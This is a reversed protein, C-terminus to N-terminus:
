IKTLDIDFIYCKSGPESYNIVNYTLAQGYCIQIRENKLALLGVGITSIKNNMPAILINEDKYKNIYEKLSNYTKIPDDCPIDFMNINPYSPSMQMVLHSYHSNAEKDKEVTSNESKGYGLSLVNPELFNIMANAREVEFGVIILLHAKKSPILNGSYGLVGRVEEIGKSLWKQNVEDGVSYEKANTYICTLSSLPCYLLLLKLLILLGEHNFTTIDLLIDKKKDKIINKIIGENLSDATFIPNKISTEVLSFHPSLLKKQKNLNKKSYIEYEKNYIIFSKKLKNVDINACVSLCRQEFSSSCIFYDYRHLIKNSLEDLHLIKM